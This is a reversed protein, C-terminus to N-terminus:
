DFAAVRHQRWAVLTAADAVGNPVVRFRVDPGEDRLPALTFGTGRWVGFRGDPWQLSADGVAEVLCTSTNIRGAEDTHAAFAADSIPHFKWTFASAPLPPEEDHAVTDVALAGGETETLISVSSPGALALAFGSADPHRAAVLQLPAGDSGLDLSDVEARGADRKGLTARAAHLRLSADGSDHGGAELNCADVAMTYARAEQHGQTFLTICTHSSTECRASSSCAASRDCQVCQGAVCAGGACADEGDAGCGICAGHLCGLGHACEADAECAPVCDGRICAQPQLVDYEVEYRKFVNPCADALPLTAATDADAADAPVLGLLGRTLAFEGRVFAFRVDGGAPDSELPAFATALLGARNYNTLRTDLGDTSNWLLYRALLANLPLLRDDVIRTEDCTGERTNLPSESVTISVIRVFHGRPIPGFVLEPQPPLPDDSPDGMDMSTTRRAVLLPPCSSGECHVCAGRAGCMLTGPCDEDAECAATGPMACVHGRCVGGGGCDADTTCGCVGDTCRQPGGCDSDSLCQACLGNPTRHLGTRRCDDAPEFTGGLWLVTFVAAALVALAAVALFALRAGSAVSPLLSPAPRQWATAPRASLASLASFRPALRTVM